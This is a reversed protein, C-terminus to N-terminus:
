TRGCPQRKPKPNNTPSVAPVHLLETDAEDLITVVLWMRTGLARYKTTRIPTLQSRLM